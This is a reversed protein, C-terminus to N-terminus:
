VVASHNRISVVYLWRILKKREGLQTFNISFYTEINSPITTSGASNTIGYLVPVTVTSTIGYLVPVTVTSTIDHSKKCYEEHKANNSCSPEYNKTQTGIVVMHCNNIAPEWVKGRGLRLSFINQQVTHSAPLYTPLYTPLSGPMGKCALTLSDALLAM